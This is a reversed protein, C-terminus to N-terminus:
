QNLNLKSYCKVKTLLMPSVHLIQLFGSNNTYVYINHM